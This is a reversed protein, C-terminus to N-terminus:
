QAVPVGAGEFYDLAREYATQGVEAGIGQSAFIDAAVHVGSFIRALGADYGLDHYTAAQLVVTTSLDSEFRLETVPLEYLGGPFFEDGTFATMVESFARGFATHGSTYGPFPPTVFNVPQYPVWTEGLVWEVGQDPGAWCKVKTKGVNEGNPGALPDGVLIVEVLGAELPLKGLESLYRIGSIPRCSDYVRKVDWVAIAADHLAGNLAFLLKVDYELDHAQPKNTPRETVTGKGALVDLALENWWPPPTTFRHGDLNVSIVRLYDGVPVFNDAYPQNTSPNLPHGAGTFTGDVFNGRAGPSLNILGAGDGSQPDMSAVYRLCEVMDDIFEPESAEGYLPPPGPDIRLDNPNYPPLAFPLVAGWHPTLYSQESNQVEIPQWGNAFQMGNTGPEEVILPANSPVYGSTDAYGNLENAGDPIGYAIVIDALEEGLAQAPSPVPNGFADLYGHVHMKRAFADFADRADTGPDAEGLNAFRYTLFAYLAHSLTESRNDLTRMVIPQKKTDGTYYGTATPDYAAWADFMLSSVQWLTRAEVTPMQTDHELADLTLAMWEAAIDESPPLGFQVFPCGSGAIVVLVCFPLKLKCFSIGM